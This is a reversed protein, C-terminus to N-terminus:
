SRGKKSERATLHESYAAEALKIADKYWSSWRGSKDGGVLIIADRDPDFVFLLRVETRGTSGPRLEKLNALNSATISDVLPRGLAPGERSLQDLAAAVQQLTDRDTHRLGHLWTKAPEVVVIRWPM